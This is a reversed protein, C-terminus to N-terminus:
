CGSLECFTSVVRLLRRYPRKPPQPRYQHSPLRCSAIAHSHPRRSRCMNASSTHPPQILTVYMNHNHAPHNKTHQDLLWVWLVICPRVPRSGSRAARLFGANVDFGLFPAVTPRGAAHAAVLALHRPLDGRGRAACQLALASSSRSRRRLPSTQTKSPTELCTRKSDLLTRESM